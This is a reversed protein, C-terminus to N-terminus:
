KKVSRLLFEKVVPNLPFAPLEPLLQRCNQVAKMAANLDFNKEPVCYMWNQNHLFRALYEQETQGSTPILIANRKLKILDMVTSYGSRAVIYESELLLENLAPTNLHNYVTLRDHRVPIRDDSGPLGRVLIINLDLGSLQRLIKKEFRTRQPEPGSILILISNKIEKKESYHFRSLIGIYKFPVPPPPKGPPHTLAGAVSDIGPLDPIWCVSFKSIFKYNWKLIQRNVWTGFVGPQDSRGLGSQIYLQHTLFV